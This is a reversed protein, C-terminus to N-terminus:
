GLAKKPGTMSGRIDPKMIMMMVVMHDGGGSDGHVVIHVM